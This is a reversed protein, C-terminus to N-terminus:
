LKENTSETIKYKEKWKHGRKSIVLLYMMGTTIMGIGVITIAIIQPYQRDFGNKEVHRVLIGVYSWIVAFGYVVDRNRLMRVTAFGTLIILLIAVWVDKPLGFGEWRISVLLTVLNAACAVTIWGYYVSFPLRIFLKESTTLYESSLKRCFILLAMLMLTIIMLSLALYEYHWAILWGINLLSSIVFISRGGDLHDRNIRRHSKGPGGLQYIMFVALLLYIIGWISFTYSDPMFLNPYSYAIDSIVKGNISVVASLYNFLMMIFFLVVVIIKNFIDKKGM